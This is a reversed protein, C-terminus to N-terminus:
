PAPRARVSAHARQPRARPRAPECARVCPRRRRGVKIHRLQRVQDHMLSILPSVVLSFGAGALAPLQYALSKGGARRRRTQPPPAWLRGIRRRMRGRRGNMRVSGLTARDSSGKERNSGLNSPERVAM